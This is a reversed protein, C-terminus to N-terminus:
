RQKKWTEYDDLSEFAAYGGCVKAIKCAWPCHRIVFYRSCGAFFEKRM